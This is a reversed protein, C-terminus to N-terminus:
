IQSSLMGVRLPTFIHREVLETTWQLYEVVNADAHRVFMRLGSQVKDIDSLIIAGNALLIARTAEIDDVIFPGHSNRVHHMTEPKGGVAFVDGIGILTRHHDELVIHPEANHVARLTAVTAALDTTLMKTYTKLIM